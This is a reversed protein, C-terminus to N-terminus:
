EGFELMFEKACSQAFMVINEANQNKGWADMVFEDTLKAKISTV